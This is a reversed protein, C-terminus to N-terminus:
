GLTNSNCIVLHLEEGCRSDSSYRRRHNSCHQFDAQGSDREVLMETSDLCHLLAELSM